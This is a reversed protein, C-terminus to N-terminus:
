PAVLITILYLSVVGYKWSSANCIYAQLISWRCIFISSLQTSEEFFANRKFLCGKLIDIVVDELIDNVIKIFWYLIRLAKSGNKNNQSLYMQCNLVAIHDIFSLGCM